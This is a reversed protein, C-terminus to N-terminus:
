GTVVAIENPAAPLEASALVEGTAADVRHISRTAADTVWASDGVVTLSPHSDQWEAPGTWPDIVPWSDTAEGTEGDLRHLAGDTGLVLVDDDATRAVGKWTYAVGEPLDVVSSSKAATDVMTLQTLEYGESDPDSNYDGFMVPSSDTVYANGTRGYADAAPLKTFTGDDYVLVGDSCGFVAVEDATTGEGHVSPCEESRAIEDRDADLARVGTRGESDGITTLLTGDELEISVGHHAEPAPIQETEPLEGTSSADLLDATDFVTTEGTGDSFLITKDGHRVVHGPTPADFVLDTLEPEAVRHEGDATTWAGTDLVQFGDTTSVLVHRGDGSSNVRNFGALEIDARQELTDADLVLLGGDYTLAVRPQAASATTGGAESGAGAEADTGAGGSCATLALAAGATLALGALGRRRRPHRQHRQTM